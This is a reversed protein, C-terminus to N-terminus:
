PIHSNDSDPLDFPNTGNVSVRVGGHPTVEIDHTVVHTIGSGARPDPVRFGGFSVWTGRRTLTDDSPAFRAFGNTTDTSMTSTDGKYALGRVATHLNSATTVDRRRLRRLRLM